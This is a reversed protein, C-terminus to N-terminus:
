CREAEEFDTIFAAALRGVAQVDALSIQEVPTHMYRQPLSVLVSPVGMGAIQTHMSNTGTSREMVEQVYPIQYRLALKQLLATYHRDLMPSYGIAAGGGMPVSHDKPSDPSQGFTVDTVLAVDPEMRFTGTLAGLGGQEEQVSGLVIVNVDLEQEKVLEMAYLLAVFCARDDMSKGFVRDGFAWPETGYAVRTGPMINEAQGKEFGCDICLDQLEFPKKQEERSQTLALPCSIVGDVPPETLVKVPLGPLLRPDVGGVCAAFKLTEGDAGTVMLGVEDMHADLLITKAGPKKSRRIGYLNGVHDIFTEDVLPRLFGEAVKAAGLEDGTVGQARSLAFLAEKLDM